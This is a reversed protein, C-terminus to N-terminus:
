LALHAAAADAGGHQRQQSLEARFHDARFGKQAHRHAQLDKGLASKQGNFVLIRGEGKAQRRVSCVYSVVYVLPLGLGVALLVGGLLGAGERSGHMALCVAAFASMLAAFLAPSRWRKRVSFADFIAFRCFAAADIRAPVLLETERNM